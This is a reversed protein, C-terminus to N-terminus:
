RGLGKTTLERKRDIVIFRGDELVLGINKGWPRAEIVRQLGRSTDIYLAGHRRPAERAPCRDKM